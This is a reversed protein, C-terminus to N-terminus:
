HNNRLSPESMHLCFSGVYIPPKLPDHISWALLLDLLDDHMVGGQKQFLKMRPLCGEMDREAEEKFLRLTQDGQQLRKKAKDLNTQYQNKSIALGNGICLSWLRGRFRVPM